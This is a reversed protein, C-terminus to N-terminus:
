KGGYISTQIYDLDCHNCKLKCIKGECDCTLEHEYCSNCVDYDETFKMEHRKFGGGCNGCDYYREANYYIVEVIGEIVYYLERATLRSRTIERTGLSENVIMELKYGGYAGDLEYSGIEEREKGVLQNLYDVKKRLTKITIRQM